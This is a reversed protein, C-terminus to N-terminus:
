QYIATDQLYGEQNDYGSMDYTTELLMEKILESLSILPGLFFFLMRCDAYSGTKFGAMFHYLFCSFIIALTSKLEVDNIYDFWIYRMSKFGYYLLIIFPIFGVLGLENALELVINHPYRQDFGSQGELQINTDGPGTGIIPSKLWGLVTIKAREVRISIASEVHVSSLRSEVIINTRIYSYGGYLAMVLLFFGAVIRIDVSRRYFLFLMFLAIPLIVLPGRTGTLLIAVIAFPSAAILMILATKKRKSLWNGLLAIILYSAFDAPGLVQGAGLGIGVRATEYEATQKGFLLIGAVAVAGLIMCAKIIKRSELITRGYMIGVFLVSPIFISMDLVKKIGYAQDRSGPLRIWSWLGLFLISFWVIKPALRIRPYSYKIHSALIGSLALMLCGMDYLYGWFGVLFPLYARLGAKFLYTSIFAMLGFTPWKVSVVFAAALLAVAILIYTYDTQM